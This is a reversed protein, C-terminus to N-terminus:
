NIINNGARQKEVPILLVRVYKHSLTQFTWIFDQKQPFLFFLPTNLFGKQLPHDNKVFIFPFTPTNNMEDPIRAILVISNTIQLTIWIKSWKTM